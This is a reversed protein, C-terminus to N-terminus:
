ADQSGVLEQLGPVLAILASEREILVRAAGLRGEPAPANTVVVKSPAVVDIRYRDRVEPPYLVRPVTEVVETQLDGMSVPRGPAIDSALASPVLVVLRGQRGVAATGTAYRDVKVLMGAALACLFLAILGYFALTTWRPAVRVVDGPGASRARHELAEHRFISSREEPVGDGM